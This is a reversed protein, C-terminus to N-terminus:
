STVADVNWVSRNAPVTASTMPPVVPMPAPMASANAPNPATTVTVPAVTDSHEAAREDCCKRQRSATAISTRSSGASARRTPSKGRSSTSTLQAPMMRRPSSCSTATNSCTSAILRVPVIRAHVSDLLHLSAEVPLRYDPLEAWREEAYPKITPQDETLSLKIRILCNIHSDACHHVVQRVTWGEPRYPTDLQADTAGALRARLRQPFAALTAVM